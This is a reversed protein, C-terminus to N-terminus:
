DVESYCQGLNIYIAAVDPHDEGVTQRLIYLSRWLLEFGSEFAGASHHYTALTTYAYAVQPHIEGYLRRYIQCAKQQYLFTQGFDMYRYSIQALKSMCQATEVNM